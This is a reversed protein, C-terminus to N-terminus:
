GRCGTAFSWVRRNPFAARAAAECACNGATAKSAARGEPVAARTVRTFVVLAVLLLVCMALFATMPGFKFKKPDKM